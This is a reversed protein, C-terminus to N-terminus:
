LYKDLLIDYVFPETSWMNVVNQLSLEPLKAEFVLIMNEHAKAVADQLDPHLGAFSRTADAVAFRGPHGQSPKSSGSTARRRYQCSHQWAKLIWAADSPMVM